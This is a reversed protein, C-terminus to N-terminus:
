MSPRCRSCPCSFSIPNGRDKEPLSQIFKQLLCEDGKRELFKILEEGRLGPPVTITGGELAKKMRDLDYNFEDM